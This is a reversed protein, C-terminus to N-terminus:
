LSVKKFITAANFGAFACCIKMVTTLSRKIPQAVLKMRFKPDINDCNLTPLIINNNLSLLLAISELLANGGLNHGFFPKLATISLQESFEGFVDTIAKAEYSDIVRSGVGHPCLLDIEEKKINAQSFTNLIARQYSDGGIKPLTIKWNELDFGSGMYESYIFANRKLAHDLDELVIGAGGEGFVLGNAKLSFPRVLGDPSYIGLDRFWIYKYVDPYDSAAIVVIKSRGSKIIQSATEFAYLGSACANNIFLSYNSVNFVKAIHFLNAFTQVDYANKMFAYYCKKFFDAKSLSGRSDSNIIEYAVDNMKSLLPMLGINEHALVLSIDNNKLDYNIKGDDLALKIAALLLNLDQNEEGEKWYDIEKLSQSNLGFDKINFDKITHLFFKELLRGEMIVEQLSLNTKKGILGEWFNKKGIGISSIPGVGTIAIRKNLNM